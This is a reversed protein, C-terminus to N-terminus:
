SVYLSEEHPKCSGSYDSEPDEDREVRTKM